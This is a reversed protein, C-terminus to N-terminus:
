RLVPSEVSEKSGQLGLDVRFFQISQFSYFYYCSKYLMSLYLLFLFLLSKCVHMQCVQLHNNLNQAVASSRYFTGSSDVFYEQKVICLVVYKQEM